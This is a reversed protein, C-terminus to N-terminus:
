VDKSSSSGATPDSRRSLSPIRLRVSQRFNWMSNFPPDTGVPPLIIVNPFRQEIVTMNSPTINGAAHGETALGAILDLPPSEAELTMDPQRTVAGFGLPDADRARQIRDNNARQIRASRDMLRSYMRPDLIELALDRAMGPTETLPDVLPNGKLLVTRVLERIVRSHLMAIRDVVEESVRDGRAVESSQLPLDERALRRLAQQLERGVRLGNFSADHGEHLHRGEVDMESTASSILDRARRRLHDWDNPHFLEPDAGPHDNPYQRLSGGPGPPPPEHDLKIDDEPVDSPHLPDQINLPNYGLSDVTSRQTSRLAHLLRELSHQRISWPWDINDTV